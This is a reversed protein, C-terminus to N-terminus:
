DVVNATYRVHDPAHGSQSVSFSLVPDIAWDSSKFIGLDDHFVLQHVTASPVTVIENSSIDFQVSFELDRGDGCIAEPMLGIVFRTEGDSGTTLNRRFFSVGLKWVSNEVNIGGFLSTCELDFVLHWAVRAEDSLAMGSYHNNAQWSNTTASYRLDFKDSLTLGNRRLFLSLLNTKNLNHQLEVKMPITSCDCLAVQSVVDEIEDLEEGDTFGVAFSALYMYLQIKQPPIELCSSRYEAEGIIGIVNGDSIWSQSSAKCRSFGNIQISGEAIHYYKRAYCLADGTIEMQKGDTTFIYGNRALSLGGLYCGGEAINMYPKVWAHAALSVGGEPIWHTYSSKADSTGQIKLPVPEGEEDLYTSVFERHEAYGGGIRFATDIAGLGYSVFRYVSKLVASGWAILSGEAECSWHNTKTIASGSTKLRSQEALEYTIELRVFDLRAWSGFSNLVNEVQIAVGFEPDRIVDVDWPFEDPDRFQVGTGSAPNVGDSGYSVTTAVLPWHYLSRALNNSIIQNGHVLGIFSERLAVQTAQKRFTVVIGLVVADDPLYLGFKKLIIFKSNRAYSIDVQALKGDSRRAFDPNDWDQMGIFSEDGKHLIDTTAASAPYIVGTRIPWMGTTFTFKSSMVRAAGSFEVGGTAVIWNSYALTDGSLTITTDSLEGAHYTYETYVGDWTAEARGTLVVSSNEPVGDGSEYEFFATQSKVSFPITFVVDFDVCFDACKPIDCIDLPVLEDCEGFEALYEDIAKQQAEWDYILTGLAAPRKFRFVREIPLSFHRKSLKECLEGVTRAHVNMIFRECCDDAKLNCEDGDRPAGVIRYWYVPLKGSSWLFTIDGRVAARIRWLLDIGTTYTNRIGTPNLLNGVFIEGSALYKVDRLGGSYRGGIELINGDPQFWYYDVLLSHGDVYPGGQMRHDWVGTNNALGGARVIGYGVYVIFEEVLGSVIVGSEAIDRYINHGSGFIIAGGQPVVIYGAINDCIGALKVQGELMPQFVQYLECEGSSSIGGSAIEDYNIVGHGTAFMGSESEQFYVSTVEAVYDSDDICEHWVILGATEEAPGVQVGGSMTEEYVAAYWIELQFEGGICLRNSYENNHILITICQGPEYDERDVFYQIIQDIEVYNWDEIAWNYLEWSKHIATRPLMESEWSDNPCQGPLEDNGYITYRGGGYVGTSFGWIGLQAFNVTAGKPVDICFKLYTNWTEETFPYEYLHGFKITNPLFTQVSSSEWSGFCSPTGFTRAGEQIGLAYVTEQESESFLIPESVKLDYSASRYWGRVFDKSDQDNTSWAELLDQYAQSSDPFMSQWIGPLIVTQDASSDPNLVSDDM